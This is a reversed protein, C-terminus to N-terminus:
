LDSLAAASKETEADSVLVVKLGNSLTTASYTRQDNPSVGITVNAVEESEDSGCAVLVLGLSVVLARGFLSRYFSM